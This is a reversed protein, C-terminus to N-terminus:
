RKRTPAPRSRAARILTALRRTRDPSDVTWMIAFVVVGGLVAAPWGIVTGCLGSGAAVTVAASVRLGGGTLAQRHSLAHWVLRMAYPAQDSRPLEALESAFELRYRERDGPPLLRVALDTACRTRRSTRAIDGPIRRYYPRVYRTTAHIIINRIERMADRAQNLDPDNLPGFESLMSEIRGAADMLLAQSHHGGAALEDVTDCISDLRERAAEATQRVAESAPPRSLFRNIASHYVRCLQSIQHLQSPSSRQSKV